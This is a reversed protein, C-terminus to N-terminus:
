GLSGKNVSSASSVSCLVRGLGLVWLGGEKSSRRRSKFRPSFVFGEMQATEKGFIERQSNEVELDTLSELM